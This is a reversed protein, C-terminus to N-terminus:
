SLTKIVKTGAIQDHLCRHGDGFIMLIGVLSIIGGVCPIFGIGRMVWDRLVVGDGFTVPSGDVKVIRIRMWKKGITQGTSAILTWQYIAIPLEAPLLKFIAFSSRKLDELSMWDMAFLFIIWPITCVLILMGDVLRALFRDGPSALFQIEDDGYSSPPKYEDIQTPPAYPNQDDGYNM